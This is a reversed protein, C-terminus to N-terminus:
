SVTVVDSDFGHAAQGGVLTTFSLSDDGAPLANGVRDALSARRLKPADAITSDWARLLGKAQVAGAWATGASGGELSWTGAISGHQSALPLAATFASADVPEALLVRIPDWPLLSGPPGGYSTAFLRAEPATKDRTLTGKASAAASWIEDGMSLYENGSATF